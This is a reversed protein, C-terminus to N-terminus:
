VQNQIVSHQLHKFDLVVLLLVTTQVLMAVPLALAVVAAEVM